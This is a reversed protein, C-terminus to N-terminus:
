HYRITENNRIIRKDSSNGTNVFKFINQNDPRILLEDVYISDSYKDAGKSCFVIYDREHDIKFTIENYAWNGDYLNSIAPDFCTSYRIQDASDKVEIWTTNFSQDYLYNYYWFSLNYVVGRDFQGPSSKFIVNLEKKGKALAGKGRYAKECELSDFSNYYIYEEAKSYYGSLEDAIYAEQNGTFEQLYKMGDPLFISDIPLSYLNFDEGDSIKQSRDLLENELPSHKEGSYIVLLPKKTLDKKIPKEYYSPIFIQLINKSELVSSRSLIASMLPLKSMYSLYMSLEEIKDTSQYSNLSIYKHYFPIPVIAQYDSFKMNALTTGTVPLHYDKNFINPNEAIKKRVELHYSLGELFLMGISILMITNAMRKHFLRRVLNLSLVIIVFYFPWAFRGLGVFQKLMSPLLFELGYRFPIAMALLLLALASLIMVTENKSLLINFIWKKHIILKFLIFLVTCAIILNTSLGIYNGVKCWPQNEQPSLDFFIAYLPRLFSHNPFFVSYVSAKHEQVYPMIIRGNHSDFITLVTYVVVAPIMVQIVFSLISKYEPKERNLLFSFLHVFFTFSLIIFGLYVHTYFWILTNILILVSYKIKNESSYFRLLLFWSIPFFCAYSLAYHGFKWLLVNSALFTISVAGAISIVWPFRFYDLILFMFLSCVVLSALMAFNLIGIAYPSLDVINQSVFKLINTFLPHCDVMFITEGYPYNMGQFSFYGPDHKIHYIYSFYNVLGDGKASFLFDNLHLINNSYLCAVILTSLLIVLGISRKKTM